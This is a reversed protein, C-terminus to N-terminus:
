PKSGCISRMLWSISSLRRRLEALRQRDSTIAKLQKATPAVPSGDDDRVAPFLLLWRRAVEKDSWGAVVDPRNRVVVHIHNSMVAFALVDIAFLGALEELRNQLWARRHEYSKGSVSDNGCLYARRVCRNICHYTGVRDEDIV